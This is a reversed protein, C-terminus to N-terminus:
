KEHHALLVDAARRVAANIAVIHASVDQQARLGKELLRTHGQIIALINSLDHVLRNKM